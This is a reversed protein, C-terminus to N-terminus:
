NVLRDVQWIKVEGSAFGAALWQSDPSFALQMLTGNESVWQKSIPKGDLSDFLMLPGTPMGLAVMKGDPSFAASSVYWGHPYPLSLSWAPEGNSVNWAKLSGDGFVAMLVNEDPHFGLSYVRQYVPIRDDPQQDQQFTFVKEGTEIDWLEVGGSFGGAALLSTGPMFKLSTIYSGQSDLTSHLNADPLQFVKIQSRQNSGYGYAIALFQKGSYTTTDLAETQFGKYKKILKGDSRNWFHLTQDVNTGCTALTTGDTSFAAGYITSDRRDKGWQQWFLLDGNPFNFFKIGGDYGSSALVNGEPSFVLSTTYNENADIVIDPLIPHLAASPISDAAQLQAVSTQLPFLEGHYYRGAMIWQWEGSPSRLLIGAQGMALLLNGSNQDIMADLPGPQVIVDTDPEPTNQAQWDVTNLDLISEWNAGSDTSLQINIGPNFRYHVVGEPSAWLDWREERSSCDSGSLLSSDPLEDWTLGGDLSRYTHFSPAKAIIYDGFEVFCNVGYDETPPLPVGMGGKPKTTSQGTPVQGCALIIVMTLFICLRNRIM